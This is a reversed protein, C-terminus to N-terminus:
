IILGTMVMVGLMLCEACTLFWGCLDGSVGGFHHKSMSYFYLFLLQVAATMCIGPIGTICLAIGCLVDMATLVARVHGSGSADAFSRVTGQGKAQPFATVSLGSLVRSYVQMLVIRVVSFVPMCTWLVFTILFYLVLRIVAFSGIHPDDLIELKKARTANSALADSTDAFGDLHIGGTLVPSVCTLMAGRLLEPFRLAECLAYVGACVLGCLVGILPFACMVYRTNKENWAFQPVPFASYMSFAVAITEFLVM